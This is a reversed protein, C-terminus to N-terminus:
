GMMNLGLALGAKYGLEEYISNAKELNEMVQQYAGLKFHVVGLYYYGNAVSKNDGLGQYIQMAEHFKSLAM